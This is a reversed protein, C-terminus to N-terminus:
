PSFLMEIFDSMPDQDFVPVSVRKEDFVHTATLSLCKYDHSTLSLM